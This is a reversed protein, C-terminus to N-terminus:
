LLRTGPTQTTTLQMFGFTTYVYVFTLIPIRYRVQPTFLILFSFMYFFPVLGARQQPFHHFVKWVGVMFLFLIVTYLSINLLQTIWYSNWIWPKQIGKLFLMNVQVQNANLFFQLTRKAIIKTFDVPYRYICRLTYRGLERDAEGQGVKLPVGVRRQAIMHYLEVLDADMKEFRSFEPDKKCLEINDEFLTGGGNTSLFTLTRNALSNRLIWPSLTALLVMFVVASRKLALKLSAGQFRYAIPLVFPFLILTPRFYSALGLFIGIGMAQQYDSFKWGLFALLVLFFVGLATALSFYGFLLTGWILPFASVMLAPYLGKKQSVVLYTVILLLFTFLTEELLYCTQYIEPWSLLSILSTLRGATEGFLARGIWYACLVIGVSVVLNVCLIPLFNGMGFLSFGVSALFAYGPPRICVAMGSWSYGQGQALQEAMVMNYHSVVPLMDLFFQPHSTARFWAFWGMRLLTASLGIWLTWQETKPILLFQLFSNLKQRIQKSYFFSHVLTTLMISFLGALIWPAFRHSIEKRFIVFDRFFWQHSYIFFCFAYLTFGVWVRQPHEPTRTNQHDNEM